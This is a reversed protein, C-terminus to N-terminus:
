TGNGISNMGSDTVESCNTLDLYTLQKCGQVLWSIGTDTIMECGNFSVHSLSKCRESLSLLALDTIKFILQSRGLDLVTLNQCGQQDVKKPITDVRGNSSSSTSVLTSSPSCFSLLSSIGLDSIQSCEKLNLERLSIPCNKALLRLENDTIDNCHSVDLVELNRCGDIINGFTSTQIQNCRSLKLIRLSTNNNQAGLISFGPGSIGRCGSLSLEILNRGCSQVLYQLGIETIQYANDLRIRELSSLQVIHKLGYDTIRDAGSLDLSRIKTLRASTVTKQQKVKKHGLDNNYAHHYKGLQKLSRDNVLLTWQSLDIHPRDSSVLSPLLEFIGIDNVSSELRKLEFFINEKRENNM